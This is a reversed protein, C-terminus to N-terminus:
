KTLIMKKTINVSSGTLRYIYVGSAFHSADFTVKHVGPEMADNVLTVIKQGLINFITLNMNDKRPVSFEILTSPNFPNPYNQSLSFETPVQTQNVGTTGLLFAINKVEFNFASVGTNNAKSLQFGIMNIKSPDIATHTGGLIEKLDNFNVTYVKNEGTLNINYSYYNYNQTNTLNFLLTLVGTGSAEFRVSNFGSLNYASGNPTLSRMVSSWDNLQGTINAGGALIMSGDPYNSITQQPYTNTVFKSVSSTPGVVYSYSGGSAYAEDKFGTPQTMILNADSIIGLPISIISEGPDVSFNKVTSIQDAGQSTRYNINLTISRSAGKNEATFAIKGDHTYKLNRIYLDPNMQNNNLYILTGFSAFKNLINQCLDTTSSYAASWVQFNYIFSANQPASYEGYTWKNDVFNATPTEYISFSIAYDYNNTTPNYLKSAYFQHGNVNLIQIDEVLSGALKDCVTKTHDYIYPAPTITSFVTAVRRLSSQFPVQYDVAYASVANSIGLIDFPTTEIATSTFPGNLPVMDQLSHIATIGNSKSGIKSLIPTTKGYMINLQRNFLLQALDGKSEVGGTGGGSCTDALDFDSSFVSYINSNQDLGAFYAKNLFNPPNSGVTATIAVIGSDGPALTGLHWVIINNGKVTESSSNGGTSSKYALGEPLSDTITPTLLNGTGTNKYVISYTVDQGVQKMFISNDDKNVYLAPFTPPIITYMGADWRTSIDGDAVTFTITKGTVSDAKSNIDINTGQDKPSFYFGQPAVFQVYYNGPALNQFLYNGTSNTVKTGLLVNASSFLKVTVGSIGPEGLEQIGNHNLDNWVFDGVRANNLIKPVVGACMITQNDGSALASTQNGGPALTFTQTYGSDNIVKSNLTTNGVLPTTYKYAVNGDILYFRLFYNGPTINTFSCHGSSDTLVWAVGSSDAAKFLKVTVFSLGPEGADQLGNMNTDIWVFNGLSAPTPPVAANVLGNVYTISLTNAGTDAISCINSQFKLDSNGQIHQFNLHLLTSTGANLPTLSFWGISIVGSSANSIFNGPIPDPINQFTLVAPDYSIKLSVAGIGNFNTVDMPISIQAGNSPVTFNPLKVTIQASAASYILLFSLLIFLKKM